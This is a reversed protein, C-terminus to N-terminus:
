YKLGLPSRLGNWFFKHAICEPTFLTISLYFPVILLMPVLHMLIYDAGYRLNWASLLMEIGGYTPVVMGIGNVFILVGVGVHLTIWLLHLLIVSVGRFGGGFIRSSYIINWLIVLGFSAAFTNILMSFVNSWWVSISYGPPSIYLAQFMKDQLFYLAVGTVIYLGVIWLWRKVTACNM